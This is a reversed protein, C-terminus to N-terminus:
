LLMNAHLELKLLSVAAALGWRSIHGYWWVGWGLGVWLEYYVAFMLAATAAIKSWGRAGGM